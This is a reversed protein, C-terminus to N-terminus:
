EGVKLCVIEKENRVFLRGASLTPVTWTQDDLVKTQSIEQYKEPSAAALALAGGREAYIILRGGAALLSGRNFGRQKWKVDGTAFDMCTLFRDNFGYLYGDLLVSTAQHNAMKKNAWLQKAAPRGGEVNLEFLACGTGYGTSIFLRNGAVIPTAVNADQSTKWEHRWFERGAAASVGVLAEGMLVIIQPVGGVGVRIPTSYGPKDDLSTWLVNGTSKDLAALSRGKGAGVVIVLMNDFIVPSASFGYDPAAGGFKAILDLTWVPKGNAADLCALGGKAGLVYVRGADIAPTARPGNGYSCQYFDGVRTKWLPKGNFADLCVASEGDSATGCMTYARPGVVAVSSFGGELPQRWLQQLGAAPWQPLLGTERSIGDQRPGRWQPWDDGRAAPPAVALALLFLTMLLDPVRM